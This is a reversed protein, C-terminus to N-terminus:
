ATKGHEGAILKQTAVCTSLITYPYTVLGLLATASGISNVIWFFISLIISFSLNQRGLGYSRKLSDVAGRKEIIAIPVAYQFVIILFLGPIILCILGLIVAVAGVILMVWSTVFYDFGKFVDSIEAKEGKMVKVAMYYLGFFLPPATIIFISGIAAVLTAIILAVYQKKFSEFGEQLTEQINTEVTM